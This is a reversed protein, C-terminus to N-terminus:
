AVPEAAGQLQDLSKAVDMTSHHEAGLRNEYIGLAAHMRARAQQVEGFYQHLLGLIYCAEGTALNTEGVCEERRKLIQTLMEIGESGKAESLAPTAPAAAGSSKVALVAALCKYWIDVVKDFMALANEIRNM